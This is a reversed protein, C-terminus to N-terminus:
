LMVRKSSNQYLRHQIKSLLPTPLWREISRRKPMLSKMKRHGRSTVSRGLQSGRTIMSNSTVRLKWRRTSWRTGKPYHQVCYHIGTGSSNAESYGGLLECLDAVEQPVAGTVPDRVDDFDVFTIPPNPPDHPLLVAPKVDDPLDDGDPFPWATHVQDIKSFREVSYTVKDVGCTCLDAFWKVENLNAFFSAVPSNGGVRGYKTNELEEASM